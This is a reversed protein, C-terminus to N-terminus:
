LIKLVNEFTYQVYWFLPCKEQSLKMSYVLSTLRDSTWVWILLNLLSIRIRWFSEPFVSLIILNSSLVCYIVTFEDEVRGEVINLLSIEKNLPYQNRKLWSVPFKCNFFWFPVVIKVNVWCSSTVM